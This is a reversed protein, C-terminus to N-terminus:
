LFKWSYYRDNEGAEDKAMRLKVRFSVKWSGRLESNSRVEECIGEAQLYKGWVVCRGLPHNSVHM